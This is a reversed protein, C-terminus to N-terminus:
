DWEGDPDFKAFGMGILASELASWFSDRREAHGRETVGFERNVVFAHYNRSNPYTAFEVEIETYIKGAVLEALWDEWDYDCADRALEVERTFGELDDRSIREYLKQMDM